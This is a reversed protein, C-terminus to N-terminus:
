RREREMEEYIESELMEEDACHENWLLEEIDPKENVWWPKDMKEDGKWQTHINGQATM